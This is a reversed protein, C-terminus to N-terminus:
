FRQSRPRKLREGVPEVCKISCLYALQHPSIGMLRSGLLRRSLSEDVTVGMMCHQAIATQPFWKFTETASSSQTARYFSSKKRTAHLSVSLTPTPLKLPREGVLINIVPRATFQKVSLLSGSLRRLLCKSPIFYEYLTLYPDQFLDSCM